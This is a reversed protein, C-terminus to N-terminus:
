GAVSRAQSGGDDTWRARLFDLTNGVLNFFYIGRIYSVIDAVTATDYAERLAAWADPAPNESAEAYRRAFRLAPREGERAARELRQERLDLITEHPVGTRAAQGTHVRVCYRCGNVVSVTLMIKERLVADVNDRREARVVGPISTVLRSLAPLATRWTLRKPDADTHDNTPSDDDSLM